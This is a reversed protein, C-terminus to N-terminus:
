VFGKNKLFEMGLRAWEKHSEIGPHTGDKAYDILKIVDPGLDFSAQGLRVSEDWDLDSTVFVKNIGLRALYLAAYDVYIWSMVKLHHNSHTTYFKVAISELDKPTMDARSALDELHQKKRKLLVKDDTDAAMWTGLNMERGEESLLTSRPYWSWSVVALDDPKFPFKLITFLVQLNSNGPTSTNICEVDLEKAVLNGFAFESPKPGHLNEGVICDPLGQGYAGSCGFVVVRM